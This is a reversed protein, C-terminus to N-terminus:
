AGGKRIKLLKHYEIFSRFGYRVALCLLRGITMTLDVLLFVTTREALYDCQIELNRKRICLFSELGPMLNGLAAWARGYNVSLDCPDEGALVLKFELRDVRLKRKFDRLLDWAVHLIPVLDNLSGGTKASGKSAQAGTKGKTAVSRKKQTRHNGPYVQFHLPGIILHLAVGDADYSARVGVPVFSLGVLIGLTILGATM